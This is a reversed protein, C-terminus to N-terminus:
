YYDNAVEARNLLIQSLTKLEIRSAIFRAREEELYELERPLSSLLRAMQEVNGKLIREAVMYIQRQLEEPYDEGRLAAWIDLPTLLRLCYWAVIYLPCTTRGLDMVEERKPISHRRALVERVSRTHRARFLLISDPNHKLEIFRNSLEIEEPPLRQLVAWAISALSTEKVLLCPFANFKVVFGESEKQNSPSGPTPLDDLLVGYVTPLEAGPDVGETSPLCPPDKVVTAEAPFHFPEINLCLNM